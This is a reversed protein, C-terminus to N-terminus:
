GPKKWRKMLTKLSTEIWLWGVPQWQSVSFISLNFDNLITSLQRLVIFVQRFRGSLFLCFLSRLSLHYSLSPLFYQLISEQLMRCYKQNANLWLRNQFGIKPRKSRGSQLLVDLSELMSLKLVMILKFERKLEWFLIKM